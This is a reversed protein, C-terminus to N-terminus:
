LNTPGPDRGIRWGPGLQKLHDQRWFRSQDDLVGESGRRRARPAEGNLVLITDGRVACLVRVVADAMEQGAERPHETSLRFSLIVQRNIDFLERYVERVREDDERRSYCALFDTGLRVIPGSPLSHDELISSVLSPFATELLPRAGIASDLALVYDIGV